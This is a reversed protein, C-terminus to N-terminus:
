AKWVRDFVRMFNGGLIKTTEERSFGRDILAQTLLPFHDVRNFEDFYVNDLRYDAFVEPYRVRFFAHFRVASESEFFDSGIGVHDVGVLDAVYAIHDLMDGLAPRVGPRTECLPGYATIGIVGDCAALAKLADDGYNRPTDCLARVNGHSVIVPQRSCDIADVTTRDGAHAMDVAMGVHNMERIVIKGLQTLGTDPQELCGCGLSSRENYTLQGIRLGLRHLIRVLTPDDEIKTALGQVGFIVGLRGEGKARRIDDATEVLLLRPEIEFYCYHGHMTGILARFDDTGMGIGGIGLTVNQATVGGAIARDLYPVGDIAEPVVQAVPLLVTVGQGDVLIADDHTRRADDRIDTPATVRIDETPPQSISTDSASREIYLSNSVDPNGM